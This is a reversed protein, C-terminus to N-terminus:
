EDDEDFYVDAPDWVLYGVSTSTRAIGSVAQLARALAEGFDRGAEFEARLLLDWEGSISYYAAFLDKGAVMLNKAVRYTQGPVCEVFVLFQQKM